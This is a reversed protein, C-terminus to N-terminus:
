SGVKTVYDQTEGPMAALWNEGHSNLAHDTRNPGANYAALARAVDGDYKRLLESLYAIGILENYAADTRYAHEDWPVGALAAAEPGTDPMVQMPGVAGAPSTLFNGHADTGHEQAKVRGILDLLDPNETSYIQQLQEGYPSDGTEPAEVPAPADTPQEAASLDAEVSPANDTAAPADDGEAGPEGLTGVVSAAGQGVVGSLYKVFAAGNPENGIAKLAKNTLKPDQSFLMDVMARARSEPIYTMDLLRRMASAKTTIFSSPHLGAIAQVLMEGDAGDGSGSQAKNSAAALAQASEDQARAATALLDSEAPGINQSVQRSTSGRSQKVTARLAEEPSGGLESLIKNGQGLARGAEGEPSDYANRVTRAQRRSTGVQVDDRLRTAHGEQMGEALRSHEAYTDSMERAARGADPAHMDLMDQLHNVAREANRGEIGGKGIDSRLSSIMDTIDGATVGAGPARARLTGAASRIVAAVEPDTGMRTGGPGPVSPFLDELNPVVPTAEHPAMTARAHEDRFALMDTPSEMANAVLDNDGPELRGGRAAHLRALLSNGIADRNPQLVARARESMEPGLNAARARIANSTREVINDKGVVAQKLIKNRDALPLLEFLTPEAGTAARYAAARKELSERTATTLRSLIQGASSLRLVDRFPRTVVQAVKIGGAVAPATLAGTVVGTPIDEGTGAAQLGGAAGGMTAIKAANALKQGKRLTSLGQLINGGRALMPIRSASAFGALPGLARSVAYSGALAGGVGAVPHKEFRKRDIGRGIELLQSYSLNTKNGTVSSPLFRLGAAALMQPIGFTGIDFGAHVGDMIGSHQTADREAIQQAVQALPKRAIARVENRRTTLPALGALKRMQQARPDSDFRNLAIQRAQETKEGAALRNRITNYRNLYDATSIRPKPAPANAPKFRGPRANRLAADPTSSPVNGADPFQKLVQAQVDEQTAGEPGDIQYTKGNPAAISYIPM